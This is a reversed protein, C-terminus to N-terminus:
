HPAKVNRLEKRLAKFARNIHNMEHTTFGTGQYFHGIEKPQHYDCVPDGCKCKEWKLTTPLRTKKM